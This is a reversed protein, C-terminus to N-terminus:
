SPYTMEPEYKEFESRINSKTSEIEDIDKECAITSTLISSPITALSSHESNMSDLRQIPDINSFSINITTEVVKLM